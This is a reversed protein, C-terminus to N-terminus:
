LELSRTCVRDNVTSFPPLPFGRELEATKWDNGRPNVGLHIAIQKGFKLGRAEM